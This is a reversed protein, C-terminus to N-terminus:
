KKLGALSWIVSGETLKSHPGCASRTEMLAAAGWEEWQELRRCDRDVDREYLKAFRLM